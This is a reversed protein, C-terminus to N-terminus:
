RADLGWSHDVPALGSETPHLPEYTAVTPAAELACCHVTVNTATFASPWAADDDCIRVWDAGGAGLADSDIEAPARGDVPPEIVRDYEEVFAEVQVSPTVGVSHLPDLGIVTFQLPVYWVVIGDVLAEECCHVNVNVAVL